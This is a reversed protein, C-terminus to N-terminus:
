LVEVILIKNIISFRVFILIASWQIHKAVMTSSMMRNNIELLNLWMRLLTVCYLIKQSWTSWEGTELLRSILYKIFSPSHDTSVFLQTKTLIIDQVHGEIRKGVFLQMPEGLERCQHEYKYKNKM